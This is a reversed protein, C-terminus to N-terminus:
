VFDDGCVFALLKKNDEVKNLPIILQAYFSTPIFNFFTNVIARNCLTCIKDVSNNNNLKEISTFNPISINNRIFEDWCFMRQKNEFCVSDHLPSNFVFAAFIAQALTQNNKLDEQCAVITSQIHSQIFSDQCKPFKCFGKSVETLAPEILM